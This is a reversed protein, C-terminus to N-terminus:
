QTGTVFTEECSECHFFALKEGDIEASHPEAFAVGCKPCHVVGPAIMRVVKGPPNEPDFDAFMEEVQKRLEAREEEPIHDFAGAEFELKPKKESM